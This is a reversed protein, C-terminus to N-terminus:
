YYKSCKQFTMKTKEKSSFKKFFQNKREKAKNKNLKKKALSLANKNTKFNEKLTQIFILKLL